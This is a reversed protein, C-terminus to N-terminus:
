KRSEKALSVDGSESPPAGDSGDVRYATDREGALIPQLSLSVESPAVIFEFGYADALARWEEKSRAEWVRTWHADSEPAALPQTFDIGYIDTYMKQVAPGLSPMYGIFYTMALDAMVPQNMQAQMLVQYPPVVLFTQDIGERAFYNSLSQELDGAPLHERNVHETYLTGLVVITCLVAAVTSSWITRTPGSPATRVFSLLAPTEKPRRVGCLVWGVVAGAATCAAGFQHFVALVALAAAGAILPTRDSTERLTRLSLRMWAAGFLAFAVWDTTSLYRAAIADGVLAPALPRAVFVALMAAAFWVFRAGHERETLKAVLLAVLLPPVLNALRYPLWGLFVYPIWDGLVLQAAMIGYVIAVVGLGFVIPVRLAYQPEHRGLERIRWLLWSFLVFAAIVIHGNGHPLSRHMDHHTISGEWVTRPDVPSAYVGETPIPAAFGRQVAFFTASLAAGLLFLPAARRVLGTRLRLNWATWIGAFLLCPPVHGMHIAPMLGLMLAALRVRGFACASLWLLAYGTGVHGNSFMGPWLFQPYAGDFELHVGILIFVAALHGVIARRGIAAGLLFVPVVTAWIFLLNRVANVVAPNPVFHMLLATSYLQISAHGGIWRLLPHGEPYQVAGTLIQAWEYDEDWRVGRLAIAVAGFAIWFLVGYRVDGLTKFAESGEIREVLSPRARDGSAGRGASSFIGM